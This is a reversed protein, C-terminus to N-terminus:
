GYKGHKEKLKALGKEYNYFQHELDKARESIQSALKMAKSIDSMNISEPKMDEHQLKKLAADLLTLPTEREKKHEFNHKANKVSRMIATTHQEGWIKDLTREDYDQGKEDIMKDAPLGPEVDALRLLDKRSDENQLWKPFDRMVQHAKGLDPLERKRIITFAAHEVAGVQDEGIGLKLRQKPDELKSYVYKYYDHFAQWRGEPDGLGYSVTSYLGDRGLQDLYRDVCELPKLYEEKFERVAATFNSEPLGAYVPDDRLQQELTMGIDIKRRVSLAKDFAYYEAKGESQLQYRNEIEEIEVLLPPGGPDDKNPLIVVRMRVFREDGPYKDLLDELVM